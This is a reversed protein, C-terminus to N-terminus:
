KRSRSRAPASPVDNFAQQVVGLAREKVDARWGFLLDRRRAQDNRASRGAGQYDALEVVANYLGYATGKVSETEAGTMAGSFLELVLDRQTKAYEVNKEYAAFRETMVANPATRAPLKPDPFIQTLMERARAEDVRTEALKGFLEAALDMSTQAQGAIDRMWLELRILAERDHRVLYTSTSSRQAMVLTNQCVVRQPTLRLENSQNGALPVVVLFYPEIQDGKIDFSPLKTTIFFTEGRGLAGWTEVPRGVVRDWIECVKQPETLNYEPGVIGFVRRQPDDPVPDRVIVRERLPMGDDTRLGVLSVGYPNYSFAEVAGQERDSVYGLSHWAKERLSYFRNNFINATM